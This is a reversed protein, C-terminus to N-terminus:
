NSKKFNFRDHQTITPIGGRIRKEKARERSEKKDPKRIESCAPPKKTELLSDAGKKGIWKKRRTM